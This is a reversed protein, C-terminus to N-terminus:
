SLIFLVTDLQTAVMKESVQVQVVEQAEKGPEQVTESEESAVTLLVTVSIDTDPRWTYHM